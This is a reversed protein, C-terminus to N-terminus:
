LIASSRPSAGAACGVGTVVEFGTTLTETVSPSATVLACNGSAGTNIIARSGFWGDGGIAATRQCNDSRGALTGILSESAIIGPLTGDPNALRSTTALIEILPSGIACDPSQYPCAVMLVDTPSACTTM